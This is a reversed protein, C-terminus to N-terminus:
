EGPRPKLQVTAIQFIRGQPSRATVVVTQPIWPSSLNPDIGPVALPGRDIRWHYGGREGSLSGTAQDRHPLVSALARVTEILAVHDAFAHVGRVSTAMLRGIAALVSVVVALAVLAEIVTFGAEGSCRSRATPFLM